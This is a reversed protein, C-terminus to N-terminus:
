WGDLVHNFDRRFNRRIRRKELITGVEEALKARKETLQRCTALAEANNQDEKLTNMWFTHQERSDRIIAERQALEIQDAETFLLTAPTNVHQLYPDKPNRQPHKAENLDVPLHPLFTLPAKNFEQCHKLFEVARSTTIEEPSSGTYTPIHLKSLRDPTLRSSKSPTDEAITLMAPFCPNRESSINEM